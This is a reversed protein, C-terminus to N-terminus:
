RGTTGDREIGWKHKKRGRGTEQVGDKEAGVTV